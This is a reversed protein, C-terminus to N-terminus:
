FSMKRYNVCTFLKLLISVQDPNPIEASIVNDIENPRIKEILWILIHAHPLGRKQWEISYMWCRTEGFIQSKTIVSMLKSLKRKFVRAVLDHRDVATQGQTLNTQIEPWM